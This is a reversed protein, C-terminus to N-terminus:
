DDWDEMTDTNDREIVDGWGSVFLYEDGHDLIVTPDYTDGTNIYTYRSESTVLPELGHTIAKKSTISDIAMMLVTAWFIGESTTKWLRLIEAEDYAKAVQKFFDRDYLMDPTAARRGSADFWIYNKECFTQCEADSMWNGDMTFMSEILKQAGSRACGELEDFTYSRKFTIGIM